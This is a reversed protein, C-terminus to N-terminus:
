LVQFIGIKIRQDSLGQHKGNQPHTILLIKIAYTM